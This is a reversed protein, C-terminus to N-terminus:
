NYITASVSYIGDRWYKESSSIYYIKSGSQKYGSSKYLTVNIKYESPTGYASSYSSIELGITVKISSPNNYNSYNFSAKPKISYSYTATTSYSSTSVSCSSTLTFYTSFNNANLNIGYSSYSSSYDYGSYSSDEDKKNAATSVCAIFCIIMFITLLIAIVKMSDKSIGGNGWMSATVGAIFLVIISLVCGAIIQSIGCIIILIISIAITIGILVKITLDSIEKDSYNNSNNKQTTKNSNYGSSTKNVDYSQTTGEELSVTQSVFVSRFPNVKKNLENTTKQLGLFDQKDKKLKEAVVDIEKFVVLLIDLVKILLDIYQSAYLIKDKFEKKALYDFQFRQILSMLDSQSNNCMDIVKNRLEHVFEYSNPHQAGRNRYNVQLPQVLKDWANIAKKFAIVNNPFDEDIKGINIFVNSNKEILQFKEKCLKEKDDITEAILNEYHILLDDIFFSMYNEKEVLSNFLKVIKKQEWDDFYKKIASISDSKLLMVADIIIEENGVLSFGAQKRSDNITEFLKIADNDFWKGVSIIVPLIDEIDATQKKGENSLFIDDFDEFIDKSFYKIEHMIRKKLNILDTYALNLDKDDDVFLQKEEYLDKLKDISDQPTAGLITFANKM